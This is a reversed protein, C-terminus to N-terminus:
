SKVFTWRDYLIDGLSDGDPSESISNESIPGKFISVSIPVTVAIFYYM